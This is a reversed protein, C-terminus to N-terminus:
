LNTTLVSIYLCSTLHGIWVGFYLSESETYVMTCVDQNVEPASNPSIDNCYENQIDCAKILFIILSM